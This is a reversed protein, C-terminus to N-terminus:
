EMEGEWPSGHMGTPGEEKGLREPDVSQVKNYNVEQFM